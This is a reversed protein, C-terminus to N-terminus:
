GMLKELRGIITTLLDKKKQTKTNKLKRLNAEKKTEYPKETEQKLRALVKEETLGNSSMGSAGYKARQSALVKKVLNQKETDNAIIDQMIQKKAEKAQKKNEKYDLVDTVDSIIQGM